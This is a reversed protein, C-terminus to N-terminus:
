PRQIILQRTVVQDQVTFRVLYMGAPLDETSLEEREARGNFQKTLLLQGTTTFLDVQVQEDTDWGTEIYANGTTPNPFLRISRNAALEDVGVIFITVCATDVCGNDDTVSVCYSSNNMLGSATATTQGDDWAYTYTTSVTGGTASAVATGDNNDVITVEVPTSPETITVTASLTCGNADSVSGTYVGATLGSIDETTAGNSWSFSYPATGGTVDIDAAGISGGNCLVDTVSVPTVTIASPETITVTASTTCGNADSISGTYAGASLGTIDQTTAGNSWSYTFPATGGTMSIFINGDSNGNCSVNDVSDPVVTLVGPETVTVTASTTCGIADSISGTYAGASLGSIDETTAGNSWSFTYPGTGGSVSIDIAGDSDGNCSVDTITPTVAIANPETVTVTATTTCGNVDSITGTYAGATLGSIDETTAGNSWSFSYPANSGSVSIAIAGDNGGNCTVDTVSDPTVTIATPETVVTTDVASCGVGDTVTVIYSGATLGTATATTAGNSWNYSLGSLGDVATVTASGDAGGNCTVNSNTAASATLGSIAISQQLTDNSLDTDSPLATFSQITAFGVSAAVPGVAITDTSNALIDTTGGAIPGLGIVEVTYPINTLDLPSNNTLVVSGSISDVGCYTASLGLFSTVSVDPCGNAAGPSGMVEDGLIFVGTGTAAAFWNAGDNQDAQLDCLTLSPGNGDPTSPWAGGDDYDVSDATQGFADQLTIDEGGNSLGGSTWEDDVAIGFVNSMAISDVALVFYDGPALTVNGFTYVVGQTLTYGQMNVPDVDNNFFEIFELSDTGSEPPNYMIETIRIDAPPPPPVSEVSFNDFNFNDFNSGTGDVMYFRVQFSATLADNLDTIIISDRTFVVPSSGGGAYNRVNVWANGNWYDVNINDSAEPANTCNSNDGARYDYAIKVAQAASADIIPSLAFADDVGNVQLSENTSGSCGATTTVQGTNNTSWCAPLAPSSGDFSETYPLASPLCPTTINLPGVLDSTDGAGCISRLYVDYSTQPTLGGLTYPNTTAFVTTGSGAVFGPAGYEIAWNSAGANETWTLDAASPTLSSASFATPAPCTPPTTFTVPGVYGSTDGAGCVSRLYVDYSTEPTLGGLTYPNTTAFVTTGSGLAFGPAGYEVAWNSAGANETWALDVSFAALNSSSLLSPDPCTPTEEFAVDDILIDNNFTFGGASNDGTVTFRLRVPGTITFTSLNTAFSVWNPGLNQQISDIITWNSGDYLEVILKNQAADDINNSFVWYKVQPNTLVSVDVLPSTLTSQEGDGNDSGDMGIFTGGGGISQDPINAAGYDAFGTPTSVDNGYEWGNDGSEEWCAPLSAVPFEELYPATFPSCPTAFSAVSSWISTDGPACIARVYFDFSSNDALGTVNFTTSTAFTSTGTGLVFGATGYQVEWNTATGNETWSLDASTPMINSAVLNSPQPCSLCSTVEVLDIALDGEFGNGTAGYSFEIYIQQGIYASLDVGVHSWPDTAATQVEGSFSFLNTFPGTASTGVGVNLTGIDDGFAHMFFSLEAQGSATSLDILPSILSAVSSSSGSAEYEAFTSGSAPGSPGTGSSNGGPAATPFDWDGNSTSIDGTWGNNVDMEDTFIIGPSGTACTVGTPAPLLTLFSLPGSWISTDGPGCISRVYFDYNTAAQLGTLNYPNTSSLVSTGSGQAFGATGYEIEWNTATGNETWGLDATTASLNSATLATPANCTLTIGGTVVVELDTVSGYSFGACPDLPLSGGEEQMVRMRTTGNFAAAPVTFPMNTAPVPPTGTWTGISESPEFIDNQNWDIWAEGAGSYFSGGDCDGFIIDAAYSSGATLTVTQSATLDQLGTIAPCAKFDLATGADGSLGISDVNSDLTSTPGVGTTCYQASLQWSLLLGLCAFLFRSFLHM